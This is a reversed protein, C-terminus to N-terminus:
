REIFALVQVLYAPRFARRAGFAVAPIEVSYASPVDVLASASLLCRQGGARDHVAAVRRQALPEPRYVHRRTVLDHYSNIIGVVPDTAQMGSRFSAPDGRDNGMICGAEPANIMFNIVRAAADPNRANRSISMFQSPQSWPPPGAGRGVHVGPSSALGLRDAM